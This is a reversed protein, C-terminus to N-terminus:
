VVNKIDEMKWFPDCGENDGCRKTTYDRTQAM